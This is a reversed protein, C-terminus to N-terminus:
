MEEKDESPIVYVNGINAGEVDGGIFKVRVSLDAIPPMGITQAQTVPYLWEGEDADYTVAGDPYSKTTGGFTINVKSVDADTIPTNDEDILTLHIDYADGQMMSLM